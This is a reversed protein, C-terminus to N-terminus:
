VEKHMKKRCIKFDMEQYFILIEILLEFRQFNQLAFKVAILNLIAESEMNNM